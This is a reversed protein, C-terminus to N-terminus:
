AAGQSTRPSSQKQSLIGALAAPLCCIIAWLGTDRDSLCLLEPGRDKAKCTCSSFVLLLYIERM